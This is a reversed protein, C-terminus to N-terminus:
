ERNVQNNVLMLYKARVTNFEQYALLYPEVPESEEEVFALPTDLQEFDKITYRIGHFERTRKYADKLTIPIVEENLKFFEYNSFNNFAYNYYEYCKKSTAFNPNNLVAIQLETNETDFLGELIKASKATHAIEILITTSINRKSLLKIRLRDSVSKNSAILYDIFESNENLLSETIMDFNTMEEPIEGTTLARIYLDESYEQSSYESLKSKLSNLNNIDDLISNNNEKNREESTLINAIKKIDLSM